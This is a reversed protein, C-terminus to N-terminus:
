NHTSVWNAVRCLQLDPDTKIIPGPNPEEVPDSVSQIQIGQNTDAFVICYFFVNPDFVQKSYRM